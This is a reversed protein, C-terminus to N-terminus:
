KKGNSAWPRESLEKFDFVTDIEAGITAIQQDKSKAKFAPAGLTKLLNNVGTEITEKPTTAYGQFPILMLFAFILILGAFRKNM